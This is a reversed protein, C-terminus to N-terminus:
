RAHEVNETANTTTTKPRTKGRLTVVPRIVFVWLEVGRHEGVGHEHEDIHKHHSRNRQSNSGGDEAEPLAVPGPRHDIVHRGGFDVQPVAPRSTAQKSTVNTVPEASGTSTLPTSYVSVNQSFAVSINM